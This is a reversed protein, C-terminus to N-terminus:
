RIVKVLLQLLNRMRLDVKGLRTLPRVAGIDIQCHLALVTITIAWILESFWKLLQLMFWAVAYEVAMSTFSNGISQGWLMWLESFVFVLRLVVLIFCYQDAWLM